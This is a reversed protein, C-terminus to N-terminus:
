YAKGGEALRGEVSHDHRTRNYEMKEEFAAWVDLNMFAAMREIMRITMMIIQGIRARDERAYYANVIMAAVRLLNEAVNSAIEPLVMGDRLTLALGGAVDLLRIICDALEVEIMSRHPLKDDQLNKRHGELAESLESVALMMLEGFNRTIPQGTRLDVWWKHNALHVRSALRDLQVITAHSHVIIDKGNGDNFTM